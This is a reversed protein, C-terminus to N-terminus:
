CESAMGPPTCSEYLLIAALAAVIDNKGIRYRDIRNQSLISRYSIETSIRIQVDIFQDM